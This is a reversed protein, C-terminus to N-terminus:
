AYAYAPQTQHSILAAISDDDHINCVLAAREDAMLFTVTQGPRAMGSGLVNTSTFSVDVGELRILGGNDDVASVVGVVRAPDHRPYQRKAAQTLILRPM